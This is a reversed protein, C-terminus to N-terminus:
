QQQRDVSMDAAHPTYLLVTFTAPDPVLRIVVVPWLGEVTALEDIMNMAQMALTLGIGDDMRERLSDVHTLKGRTVGGNDTYLFRVLRVGAKRATEVVRDAPSSTRGPRRAPM